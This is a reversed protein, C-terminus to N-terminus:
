EEDESEGQWESVGESEDDVDEDDTSSLESLDSEEEEEKIGELTSLVPESKPEKKTITPAPSVGMSRDSRPRTQNTAPAGKQSAKRASPRKNPVNRNYRADLRPEDVKRWSEEDDEVNSRPGLELARREKRARGILALEKGPFVNVCSLIHYNVRLKNKILEEEILRRQDERTKGGALRENQKLGKKKKQTKVNGDVLPIKEAPLLTFYWWTFTKEGGQREQDAYQEFIDIIKNRADLSAKMFEGDQPRGSWVTKVLGYYRWKEKCHEWGKMSEQILNKDLMEIFLSTPKKYRDEVGGGLAVAQKGNASVLNSKFMLTTRLEDLPRIDREVRQGKVIKYQPAYADYPDQCTSQHGGKLDKRHYPGLHYLFWGALTGLEEHTELEVCEKDSHQVFRSHFTVSALFTSTQFIIPDKMLCTTTRRKRFDPALSRHSCYCIVCGVNDIDEREKAAKQKRTLRTGNAREEMLRQAREENDSEQDSMWGRIYQLTVQQDLNPKLDGEEIRPKKDQAESSLGANSLVSASRKLVPEVEELGDDEDDADLVADEEMGEDKVVAECELAVPKIDVSETLSRHYDTDINPSKSSSM